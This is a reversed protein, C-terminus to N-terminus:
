EKLHKVIHGLEDLIIKLGLRVANPSGPLSIILTRKYVGATARSLIAGAGLEKYSEYRFIEGFGDLEKDFINKLTEITIDRSGIGTGGTTIIVNVNCDDIAKELNSILLKSDDPIVTYFVVKYKKNLADVIFDGSLDMSSGLSDKYRSDSLTIVGCNISKPADQRHKQMTESKM